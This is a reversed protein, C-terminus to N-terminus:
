SSVVTLCCLCRGTVTCRCPQLPRSLRCAHGVCCHQMTWCPQDQETWGERGEEGPAVETMRRSINSLRKLKEDQSEGTGIGVSFRRCRLRLRTAMVQCKGVSAFLESASAVDVVGKASDRGGGGALWMWLPVVRAGHEVPAEKVDRSVSSGLALRQNAM